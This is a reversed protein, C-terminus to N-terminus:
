GDTNCEVSRQNGTSGSGSTGSRRSREDENERELDAQYQSQRRTENMSSMPLRDMWADKLRKLLVSFKGIWKVMEINERKARIFQFFRWLFVGSAGKVVHPRLTNKSYKVGESRLTERNFLGKCMAADGVLRNKLAPGPKGAELQTLDLWDDILEDYKFWSTSGDFLPPNKVTIGSFATWQDTSEARNAGVLSEAPQIKSYNQFDAFDEEYDSMLLTSDQVISRWYSRTRSLIKKLPVKNVVLDEDVQEAVVKHFHFHETHAVREHRSVFSCVVLFGCLFAPNKEPWSRYQCIWDSHHNFVLITELVEKRWKACMTRIQEVRVVSHGQALFMWCPVVSLRSLIDHRYCLCSFPNLHWLDCWFPLHFYHRIHEDTVGESMKLWGLVSM